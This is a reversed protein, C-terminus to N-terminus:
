KKGERVQLLLLSCKSSIWIEPDAKDTNMNANPASSKNWSIFYGEEYLIPESIYFNLFTEKRSVCSGIQILFLSGIM